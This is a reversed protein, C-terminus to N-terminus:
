DERDRALAERLGGRVPSSASIPRPTPGRPEIRTACVWADFDAPDVRLRGCIKYAALEGRGIAGRISKESLSCREAIVSVTLAPNTM